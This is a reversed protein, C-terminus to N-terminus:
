DCFRVVEDMPSRASHFNNIKNEENVYGVAIGIAIKLNDPVKLERRVVEPYNVLTIAPITGLGKEAAMLMVSQSYAGLDFLGWHELMKDMCLFIVAPANFMGKNLAGFQEAADGCDRIMDPYLGKQRAKANEPWAEPRAIEPIAKVRQEYQALYGARIRELTDGTAVFVDWPQSNAWSPTRSAAELIETLVGRSVPKPLFDRMSRRASLADKVNM